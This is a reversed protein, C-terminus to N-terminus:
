DIQPDILYLGKKFGSSSYKHHFFIGEQRHFIQDQGNHCKVSPLRYKLEASSRFIHTIQAWLRNTCYLLRCKFATSIM